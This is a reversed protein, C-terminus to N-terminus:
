LDKFYEAKLQQWENELEDILDSSLAIESYDSNSVHVPTFLDSEECTIEIDLFKELYEKVKQPKKELKEFPLLLIQEQPFVSYWNKLINLYKSRNKVSEEFAIAGLLEETVIPVRSKLMRLQSQIRDVPHRLMFIIKIKPNLSHIAQIVNIPLMAYEPTIEGCLKNKPARSFIDLYWELDIQEQCLHFLFSLWDGNISPNNKTALHLRNLASARRWCGSYASNKEFALNNFFNLEKLPPLWLNSQKRLIKDLWTTGSKQIGVCLFDPSRTDINEVFQTLETLNNTKYQVPSIADQIVADKKQNNFKILEDITNIKQEDIATYSYESGYTQVKEVIGKNFSAWYLKDQDLNFHRQTKERHVATLYQLPHIVSLPKKLSYNASILDIKTQEVFVIINQRYWWCVKENDWLKLRLFDVAIYGKKNFLREWYEPWNENIHGHGGQYPIAASFLVIPATNTVKSVFPEAQKEPLHEAVELSIALDSTSVPLVISNPSSLDNPYFENKSIMLRNRPVYDGDTGVVSEVGLQKAASLWSGVGCGFDVISKIRFTLSRQLESIVEIASEFSEQSQLDYFKTNYLETM